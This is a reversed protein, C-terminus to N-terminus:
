PTGPEPKREVVEISARNKAIRDAPLYGRWNVSPYVVARRGIISGPNLVAQCGIECFDGLLAGLKRLGTDVRRGNWEVTINGPLSRFNSLIVGAGLHARHGLISDGVYNFHPVQAGNFLISHKIECANGVVCNDGVIVHERIYANHRIRCNRGIIAPGKIMAGDEVVTGEGIYVKDGIYAVGDCRNKLEPRVNAEIYSALRQLAEWPYQLNEFLAKHETQTLDFLDATTLM